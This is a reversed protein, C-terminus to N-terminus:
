VITYLFAVWLTILLYILMISAAIIYQKVFQDRRRGKIMIVIVRIVEYYVFSVIVGLLSMRFISTIAIMGAIVAIELTLPFVPIEAGCNRCKGKCALYSVIPFQDFVRIKVGCSDCACQSSLVPLTNGSTLRLINTTALGGIHYYMYFLAIMVIGQNTM